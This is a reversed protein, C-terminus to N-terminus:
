ISWQKLFVKPITGAMVFPFIIKDKTVAYGIEQNALVSQETNHSWVVIVMQSRDILDMIKKALIDGLKKRREAIVLRIFPHEAFAKQMIEILSTDKFAHVVFVKFLVRPLATV